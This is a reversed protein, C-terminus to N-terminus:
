ANPGTILAVVRTGSAFRGGAILAYLGYLM